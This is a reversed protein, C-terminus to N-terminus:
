EIELIDSTDPTQGGSGKFLNKTIYGKVLSRTDKLYSHQVDKNNLAYSIVNM